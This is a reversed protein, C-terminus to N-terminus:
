SSLRDYERILSQVQFTYSIHSFIPFLSSAEGKYIGEEGIKEKTFKRKKLKKEINSWIKSLAINKMAM